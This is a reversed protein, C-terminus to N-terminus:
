QRKDTISLKNELPKIEKIKDLNLKNDASNIGYGSLEDVLKQLGGKGAINAQLKNYNKNLNEISTCVDEIYQTFTFLKDKFKEALKIIKEHNEVQRQVDWLKEIIRITHILSTASVIAVDKSWAENTLTNRYRLAAIYAEEPYIFMMTFDPSINKSDKEFREPYKKGSLDSIFNKITKVHEGLFKDKEEQTKANCYNMYASLPVKSDIVIWKNGPLLIQFDTRKNAEQQQVFYNVGEQLNSSELITKLITEGFDGKAKSDTKFMDILNETQQQLKNGQNIVNKLENELSGKTQNFENTQKTVIEKFSKLEDKYPAVVNKIEEKNTTTLETKTIKLIESAVTQFEQKSSSILKEQMKELKEKEEIIHEKDKEIATIRNQLSFLEENCDAVKKEFEKLKLDKEKIIEKQQEYKGLDVLFSNKEKDLTEVKQLQEKYLKDFNKSSSFFYVATASAIVFLVVFLWVM